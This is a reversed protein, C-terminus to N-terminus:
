KAKFFKKKVKQVKFGKKKMLFDVVKGWSSVVSACDAYHSIKKFFLPIHIFGEAIITNKEENKMCLHYIEPFNCKKIM